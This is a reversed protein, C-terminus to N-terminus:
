PDPSRAPRACACALTAFRGRADRSGAVLRREARARICAADLAELRQLDQLREPGVAPMTPKRWTGHLPEDSTIFSRPVFDTTRDGIFIGDAANGLPSIGDPAVGILNGLISNADTGAGTVSIGAGLIPEILDLAAQMEAYFPGWEDALFARKEAPSGYVCLARVAQM